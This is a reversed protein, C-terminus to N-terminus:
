DPEYIGVLGVKKLAAVSYEKTPKPNGITKGKLWEKLHKRAMAPSEEGRIDLADPEGQARERSINTLWRM